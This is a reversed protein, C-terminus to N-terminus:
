LYIISTETNVSNGTTSPPTISKESIGKSQLYALKGNKIGCYNLFLSQFVLYDQSSDVSFYKGGNHISFKNILNKSLRKM